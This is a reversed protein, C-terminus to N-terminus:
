NENSAGKAKGNLLAVLSKIKVFKPAPVTEGLRYVTVILYHGPDKEIRVSKAKSEYDLAQM